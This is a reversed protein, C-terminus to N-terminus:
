VGLVSSGINGFHNYYESYIIIDIITIIRNIYLGLPKCYKNWAITPVYKGLIISV